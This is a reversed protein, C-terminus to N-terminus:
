LDTFGGGTGSVTGGTNIFIANGATAEDSFIVIGFANTFTAM